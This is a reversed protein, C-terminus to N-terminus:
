FQQINQVKRDTLHIVNDDSQISLTSHHVRILIQFM